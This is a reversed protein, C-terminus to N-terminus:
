VSYSLIVPLQEEADEVVRTGGGTVEGVGVEVAVGFQDCLGGDIVVAVDDVLLDDLVPWGDVSRGFIVVLVTSLHDDVAIAWDDHVRRGRFAALVVDIAPVDFNSM